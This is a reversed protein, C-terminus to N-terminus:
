SSELRPSNELAELQQRHRPSSSELGMVSTFALVSNIRSQGIIQPKERQRLQSLHENNRALYLM